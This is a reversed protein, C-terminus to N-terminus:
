CILHSPATKYFQIWTDFNDLLTACHTTCPKAFMVSLFCFLFFGVLLHLVSFM